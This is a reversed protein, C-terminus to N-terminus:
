GMAGEPHRITQFVNLAWARDDEEAYGITVIALSGPVALTGQLQWGARTDAPGIHAWGMRRGDMFEVSGPRQGAGRSALMEEPQPVSGDEGEISLSSIQVSKDGWRFGLEGGDPAVTRPWWGPLDVTWLGTAPLTVTHRLYGPGEPRPAQVRTADASLLGEMEGILEGDASGPSLKDARLLADRAATMENQERRDMPLRYKLNCWAMAMGYRRWFDATCPEDWWAYFGAAQELLEEGTASALSELVDWDVPGLPTVVQDSQIVAYGAPMNLAVRRSPRYQGVVGEALASLFRAMQDQMDQFDAWLAFGTDDGIDDGRWQWQLQCGREIARLIGVAAAHYGPGCTSTKVSASIRGEPSWTLRLPDAVPHPCISLTHAVVETRTLRRLLPDELAQLAATRAEALLADRSPRRGLLRLPRVDSFTKLELGM